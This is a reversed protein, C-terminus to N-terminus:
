VPDVDYHITLSRTTPASVLRIYADRLIAKVKTMSADAEVKVMIKRIYRNQVRSVPPEQVASVRNGLVNRLDACLAEAGRQAVEADRHKVFINIIRSFPPYNFSRREELEGIYFGQYDHMAAHVLVPHEPNYTQVVVRGKTGDARRGSRGGVQELMNFAREASRFDPFNILSDASLVGVLEVNGFDLGKTVMQTGVLIDAKHESFDDIIRSYADKNRTTDLDMRMIRANSFAESIEEELRETGFGVIEIAPEGCNPCVRPVPYSAGCYHCTLSNHRRHYTLSVDCYDCKPVFQCMKCRAMPAYGRRNHFLIAQRGRENVTENVATLLRDSIFEHHMRGMKRETRMDIIEIEPLAAGEFRETLSVLGFKGTQAKYYTEVTPTASGYVTKAGHMGALVTAADRGNYRPAPDYQKYSAEHEEDVIVLGLKAFPLFVSSRAGIVVLPENTNLLRRWIEVRESDSFKSHYIVVKSGFVRQLRRTLQTTLAIEPVLYLAQLGQRLVYDILHIYIETKGSGTVGHLLTVAHELFSRHVERLAKEQAESLKPLADTRSNELAFRSLEKNYIECIGKDALAKVNARTVEAKEALEELSVEKLESGQQNFGSLGILGVLAAEQKGSRRVKGFAESMAASDGRPITLRVYAKKVARYRERLRESVLVVESAVLKAVTGEASRGAPMPVKSAIASAPQRGNARLFNVVAMEVEGLSAIAEPELDPNLEVTTESEVKLGAPVAAKYVEGRTCLYYDAIWDWFRLQPHRIIPHPDLVSVIEKAKLGQPAGVDTADVIGTYLHRSGFPVLVRAGPQVDSPAIHEPLAYTFSGQLPVPLLVSVYHM